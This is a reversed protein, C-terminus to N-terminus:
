GSRQSRAMDLAERGQRRLAEILSAPPVYRHPIQQSLPWRQDCRKAPYAPRLRRLPEPSGASPIPVFIVVPKPANTM